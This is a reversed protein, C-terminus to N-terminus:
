PTEEQAPLDLALSRRVAERTFSMVGRGRSMSEPLCLHLLSCADCRADRVATPTAQSNVVEHLQRAADETRARLEGDFVVVTRRRTQGYFIEGEPILGPLAMMEEICLAQACLQVRDADYPKPKGRKYEVPRPLGTAPFEVVDAKGILGLRYSVLDLARAVRTQASRGARARGTGADHANRHLIRGETTFRNEAWLQELHILAARRPCYLWQALGSLPLLQADTFTVASM